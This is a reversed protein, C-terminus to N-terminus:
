SDADCTDRKGGPLTDCVPCPVGSAPRSFQAVRERCLTEEVGRDQAGVVDVIRLKHAPAVRAYVSTKRLSAAFGADDLAGLESGTLAPAGADVIRYGLALLGIFIAAVRAVRTRAMQDSTHQGVVLHRPRELWM